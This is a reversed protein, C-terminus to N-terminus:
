TKVGHNALREKILKAARQSISERDTNAIIDDLTARLSVSWQKDRAFYESCAQGIIHTIYFGGVGLSVAGMLWGVFPVVKLISAGVLPIVAPWLSKWGETVLAQALEKVEDQTIQTDYNKALQHVLAAVAVGGGFLDFLPVPNVAVAVGMGIAYKEILADADQRRARNLGKREEAEHSLRDIQKLLHGESSLIERLRERVLNVDPAGRESWEQERGDPGKKVYHRLPHASSVLVNKSHVLGDMRRRVQEHLKIRDKASLADTKNLIVLMPKGVRALAHVADYEFGTPEHDFIALVVDARRAAAIAHAGRDAGGVEGIGPTDMVRLTVGEFDVIRSDVKRTTGGVVDVAFETTHFVANMLASKGVAIRGFVVLDLL